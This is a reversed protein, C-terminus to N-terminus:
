NVILARDTVLRGQKGLVSVVRVLATLCAAFVDADVLRERMQNLALLEPPAIPAKVPKDKAKM